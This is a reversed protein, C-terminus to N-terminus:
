GGQTGCHHHQMAVSLPTCAGLVDGACKLALFDDDYTSM